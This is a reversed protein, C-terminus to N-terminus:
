RIKMCNTKSKQSCKHRHFKEICSVQASGPTQKGIRLREREEGERWGEGNREKEGERERNGRVGSIITKKLTQPKKSRNRSLYATAQLPIETGRGPISGQGCTLVM